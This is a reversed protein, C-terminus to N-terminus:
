PGEFEPFQSGGWVGLVGTLFRLVTDGGLVGFGGWGGVGPTSIILCIPGMKVRDGSSGAVVTCVGACFGGKKPNGPVGGVGGPSGGFVGKKSGGEGRIPRNGM